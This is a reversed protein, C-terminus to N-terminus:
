SSRDLLPIHMGLLRGISVLKYLVSKREEFIKLDEFYKTIKKIKQAIENHRLSKPWETM